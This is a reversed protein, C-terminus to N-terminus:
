LVGKLVISKLESFEKLTVLAGERGMGSMKYGGFAHYSTRYDGTGNVVCSGAKIGTAVMMATGVSGTMVGSSLGYKTNNAIALAEEPTEFGIIPFVPAFIEMDQAIPMDKTVNTLITPEVLTKSMRRGGHFCKAGLAITGKIQEEAKDAAAENIMCGYACSEDDPAGGKVAKLAEALKATFEERVGNQVIFRKSATCVQGCNYIRGEIAAAVAADLDCDDFIILADNGGLELGLRQLHASANRHLEVGVESSGTLSILAIRENEAFWGGVKAGSGTVVQVVDGPFGAELMMQAVLIISMPTDSAPKLIVSNGACLAPAAKNMMTSVPYNFPAILACVGIPEYRTFIFDGAGRRENNAPITRGYLTDAASMYARFIPKVVSMEGRCETINKGSEACLLRAAEESRSEFIALFKEIIERRQDNRLKSWKEQGAAAFAAARYVDEKTAAPVTGILEGTYPNFNKATGGDSADVFEGGIIMKMNKEAM